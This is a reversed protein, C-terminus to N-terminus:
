VSSVDFKSLSVLQAATTRPYHTNKKQKKKKNFDKKKKNRRGERVPFLCGM